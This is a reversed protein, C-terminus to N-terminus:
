WRGIVERLATRVQEPPPEPDGTRAAALRKAIRRAAAVLFHGSGCAPDCVTIGLVEADVDGTETGHKEAADLVPDLATDLLCEILSTPTYYSGTTKREHGIEVELGFTAAEINLVPHFELLSEYVSGLEESGLNKYDIPRQMGDDITFALARIAELLDHNALQCGILDPLAKESFLFGNLAPLGLPLYGEDGGVKSMILYLGQYLDSHQTGLRREALRRLRTTSYHTMYRERAAQTTDPHLLVDRDEAVFLVILR